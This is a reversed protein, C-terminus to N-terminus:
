ENTASSLIVSATGASLVSAEVGVWKAMDVNIAYAKHSSETTTSFGTAGTVTSAGDGLGKLDAYYWPNDVTSAATFDVNKEDKANSVKVKFTSTAGVLLFHVVLHRFDEVLFPVSTAAASIGTFVPQSQIRRM